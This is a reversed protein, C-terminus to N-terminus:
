YSFIAYNYAPFLDGQPVIVLERQQFNKYNGTSRIVFNEDAFTDGEFVINYRIISNDASVNTLTLYNHTHSRLFDSVSLNPIFLGTSDKYTGFMTRSDLSTPLTYCKYDGMSETMMDLGTTIFGFISWKVCYPQDHEGAMSLIFAQITPDINVITVTERRGIDKFLAFNMTQDKALLNDGNLPIRQTRSHIASSFSTDADGLNAMEEEEYGPYHTKLAYLSFEIGSEAAYFAKYSSEHSTVLKASNIILTSVGFSLVVFLTILIISVILANGRYRNTTEIIVQM